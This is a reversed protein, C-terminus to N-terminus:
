RFMKGRNEPREYKLADWMQMGEAQQDIFMNTLQGYNEHDGSKGCRFFKPDTRQLSRFTPPETDTQLCQEIIRKPANIVNLTKLVITKNLGNVLEDYTWVIDVPMKRKVLWNQLWNEWSGFMIDGHAIRAQLLEDPITQGDIQKLYHFYSVAVDRGDRV